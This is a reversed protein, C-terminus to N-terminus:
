RDYRGRLTAAKPSCLFSQITTPPHTTDSHLLVPHVWPATTFTTLWQDTIGSVKLQSSSTLTGFEDVDSEGVDPFYCRGQYRRGVLNTNKKSVFQVQPSSFSGAASGTGNGVATEIKVLVDTTPCYTLKCGNYRSSVSLLNKYKPALATSVADVQAQTPSGTIEVGLENVCNHGPRNQFFFQFLGFGEPIVLKAM